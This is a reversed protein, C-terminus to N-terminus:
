IGLNDDIDKAISKLDDLTRRLDKEIEEILNELNNVRLFYKGDEYVVIGADMLKNIHHIVTGRSLNLDIAIDDSSVGRKGRGAKILVIFIRFCSKDKDRLNFLGVSNGFWQLKENIDKHIPKRIKIITIKQNM